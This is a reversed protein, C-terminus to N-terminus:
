NNFPKEIQFIFFEESKVDKYFVEEVKYDRVRLPELFIDTPGDGSLFLFLRGRSTLHDGLQEALREAVNTSRWARDLISRPAEEFFPPNFLIVDFREGNINDFLDSERVTIKSSLAHAEINLAACEVAHPNIDTAMVERAFEAAFIAVIGSGTGLELVRAQDNFWESRLAKAFIEGSLCIRPSFVQPLVTISRGGIVEKHRRNYKRRQTLM